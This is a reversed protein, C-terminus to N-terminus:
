SEVSKEGASCWWVIIWGIICLFWVVAIYMEGWEGEGVVREKVMEVDGRRREVRCESMRRAEASSRVVRIRRMNRRVSM